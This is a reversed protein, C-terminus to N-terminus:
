EIVTSLIWMAACARSEEDSTNTTQGGSPGKQLGAVEITYIIGTIIVNWLSV